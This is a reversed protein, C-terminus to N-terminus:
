HDEGVDSTHDGGSEGRDDGGKQADGEPQARDGLDLPLEVPLRGHKQGGAQPQSLCERDRAGPLQDSVHHVRRQSVNGGRKHHERRQHKQRQKDTLKDGVGRGDDDRKGDREREAFVVPEVGHGEAHSDSECGAEGAARRQGRCLDGHGLHGTVFKGIIQFVAPRQCQDGVQAYQHKDGHEERKHLSSDGQFSDKVPLLERLGCQKAGGVGRLRHFMKWLETDGGKGSGDDMFEGGQVLRLDDCGQPRGVAGDGDVPQAVSPPFDGEVERQDSRGGADRAKLFDDGHARFFKDEEARAAHQVIRFGASVDNDGCGGDAVLSGAIM